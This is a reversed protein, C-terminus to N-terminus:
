RASQRRDIGAYDHTRLLPKFETNASVSKFAHIMASVVPLPIASNDLQKSLIDINRLIKSCNIREIGSNDGFEM